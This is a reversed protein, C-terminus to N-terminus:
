DKLWKQVAEINDGLAINVAAWQKSGGTGVSTVATTPILPLYSYRTISLNTFKVM